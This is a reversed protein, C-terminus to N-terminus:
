FRLAITAVKIKYDEDVKSCGLSNSIDLALKEVAATNQLAIPSKVVPNISIKPTPASQLTVTPSPKILKDISKNTPKINPSLRPNAELTPILSPTVEPIIRSVPTTEAIPEQLKSSEITKKTSTSTECAAITVGITIFIFIKNV